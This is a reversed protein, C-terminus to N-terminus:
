SASCYKYIGYIVYYVHYGNLTSQGTKTDDEVISTWHLIM